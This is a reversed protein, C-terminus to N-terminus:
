SSKAFVDVLIQKTIHAIRLDDAASGLSRGTALNRMFLSSAHFIQEKREYIWSAGEIGYANLLEGLIGRGNTWTSAQEFHPSLQIFGDEGFNFFSSDYGNPFYFVDSVRLRGIQDASKMALNLTEDVFLKASGSNLSSGVAVATCCFALKIRIRRGNTIPIGYIKAVEEEYKELEAIKEDVTPRRDKRFFGLVM